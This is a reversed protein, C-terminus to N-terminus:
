LNIWVHNLAQKANYRKCVDVEVLHKLFDKLEESFCKPVDKDKKLVDGSILYCV